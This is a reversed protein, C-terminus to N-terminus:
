GISDYCRMPAQRMGSLIGFPRVLLYVKNITCIKRFADGKAKFDQLGYFSSLKRSSLDIDLNKRFYFFMYLMKFDLDASHM